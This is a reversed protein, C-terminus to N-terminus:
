VCVCVCVCVEEPDVRSVVLRRVNVRVIKLLAAVADAAVDKEALLQPWLCACMWVCVMVVCFSVFVGVCRCVGVCVGVWVWGCVTCRRPSVRTLVAGMHTGLRVQRLLDTLLTAGDHGLEVCLPAELDLAAEGDQTESPDQPSWV